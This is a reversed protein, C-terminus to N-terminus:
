KAPEQLLDMFEVTTREMSYVVKEVNSVLLNYAIYAFIGVALGVATTILAQYIGGALVSPTVNQQSAMNYFAQIMGTVTGFFGIMPAAGAVSALISLNKEMRFLELNGTNEIAADIDRLPKGIRQLGKEILRAIPTDTHACLNKAADINGNQVSNRINNMFNEDVNSARKLSRYRDVFIYIAIVSLVLNIFINAIGLYGTQLLVSWLNQSGTSEVATQVQPLNSVQFLLVSLM